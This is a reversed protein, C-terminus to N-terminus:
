WGIRFHTNQTKAAATNQMKTPATLSLKKQNGKKKKINKHLNTNVMNPEIIPTITFSFRTAFTLTCESHVQTAFWRLGKSLITSCTSFQPPLLMMKGSHEMVLPVRPSSLNWARTKSFCFCNFGFSITCGMTSSTLRGTDRETATRPEDRMASVKKRKKVGQVVNLMLHNRCLQSSVAVCGNLSIIVSEGILNRSGTLQSSFSCISM